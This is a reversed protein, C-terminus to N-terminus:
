LVRRVPWEDVLADLVENDMLAGSEYEGQLWAYADDKTKFVGTCSGNVWLLFVAKMPM